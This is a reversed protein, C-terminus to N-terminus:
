FVIEKVCHHYNNMFGVWKMQGTAKLKEDTDDAMHSVIRNFMEEAQDNIGCLYDHPTGNM